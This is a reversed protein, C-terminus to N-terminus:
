FIDLNKVKTDIQEERLSPCKFELFVQWSFLEWLVGFGRHGAHPGTPLPFVHCHGQGETHPRELHALRDQFVCPEHELCLIDLRARVVKHLPLVRCCLPSDRWVQSEQAVQTIHRGCAGTECLAPHSLLLGPLIWLWSWGVWASKTSVFLDLVESIERTDSPKSCPDWFENYMLIVQSASPVCLHSHGCESNRIWYTTGLIWM